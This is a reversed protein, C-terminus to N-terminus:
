TVRETERETETEIGEEIGKQQEGIKRETHLEQLNRINRRGIVNIKQCHRKNPRLSNM